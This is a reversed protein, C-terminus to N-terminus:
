SRMRSRYAAGYRRCFRPEGVPTAHGRVVRNLVAGDHEASTILAVAQGRWLFWRPNDPHLRIPETGQSLLIVFLRFEFVTSL